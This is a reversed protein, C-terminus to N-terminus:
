RPGELHVICPSTWVHFPFAALSKLTPCFALFFYITFEPQIQVEIVRNHLVRAFIFANKIPFILSPNIWRKEYATKIQHRQRIKEHWFTCSKIPHSFTACSLHVCQKVKSSGWQCLANGLGIDKDRVDLVLRISRFYNLGGNAPYCDYDEFFGKFWHPSLSWTTKFVCFM